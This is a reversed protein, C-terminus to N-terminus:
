RRSEPLFPYTLTDKKCRNNKLKKKLEFYNKHWPPINQPPMNQWGEPSFSVILCLSLVTHYTCHLPTCVATFPFRVWFLSRSHMDSPYEQSSKLWRGLCLPTPHPHAPWALMQPAPPPASYFGLIFACLPSVVHRLHLAQFWLCDAVKPAYITHCLNIPHPRPSSAPSTPPM